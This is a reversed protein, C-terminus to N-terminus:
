VGITTMNFKLDVFRDNYQFSGTTGNYIWLEFILNGYFVNTKSNWDSSLGALNLNVGNFDIDNFLVRTDGSFSYDLSFTVPLEWSEKNAVFVPVNFLSPLTSPTQNLGDPASQTENRFKVEVQYYACSGLTNAIGL